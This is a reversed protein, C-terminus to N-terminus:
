INPFVSPVRASCLLVLCSRFGSPMLRGSTAALDSDHVKMLSGLQFLKFVFVVLALVGAMFSSAGIYDFIGLEQM